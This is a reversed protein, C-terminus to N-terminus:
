GNRKEGRENRGLESILAAVLDERGAQKAWAAFLFLGLDRKGEELVPKLLEVEKEAVSQLRFYERVMAYVIVYLPKRLRAALVRLTQDDADEIYFSTLKPKAHEISRKAEGEYYAIKKAFLEIFAPNLLLQLRYFGLIRRMIESRTVGEGEAAETIERWVEEPLQITRSVGM